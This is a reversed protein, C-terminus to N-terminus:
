KNKYTCNRNPYSTATLYKMLSLCSFHFPKVTEGPPSVDTKDLFHSDEQILSFISKVFDAIVESHWLM